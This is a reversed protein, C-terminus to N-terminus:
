DTEKGADTGRDPDQDSGVALWAAEGDIKEGATIKANGGNANALEQDPSAVRVAKGLGHLEREM